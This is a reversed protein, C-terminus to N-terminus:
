QIRPKSVISVKTPFFTKRDPGSRVTGIMTAQAADDFPMAERLLRPDIDHIAGSGDQATWDPAGVIEFVESEDIVRSM